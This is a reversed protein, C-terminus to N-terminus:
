RTRPLLLRLDESTLAQAVEPDISLWQPNAAKGNQWEFAVQSFTSEKSERDGSAYHELWVLQAPNLDFEQVVQDVLKEIVYPNFWGLEFGMDAILVTHVNTRARFIRLHCRLEWTSSVQGPMRGPIQGPMRCSYFQDIIKMM